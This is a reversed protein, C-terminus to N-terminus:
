ENDYKRGLARPDLDKPKAVDRVFDVSENKTQGQDINVNLNLKIRLDDSPDSSVCNSVILIVLVFLQETAM